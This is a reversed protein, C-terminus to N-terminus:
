APLCLLERANDEFIQKREADTIAMREISEITERIVWVGLEADFPMDTGFLMHDAGFFDYGCMLATTNGQLATDDYLMRYYDVVPKSFDM